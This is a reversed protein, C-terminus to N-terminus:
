RSNWWCFPQRSGGDFFYHYRGGKEGGATHVTNVSSNLITDRYWRTSFKLYHTNTHTHPHATRTHATHTRTHTYTQRHRHRDTDTDTDTDTFCPIVHRYLWCWVLSFRFLDKVSGQKGM